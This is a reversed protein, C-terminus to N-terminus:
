SSLALAEVEFLLEPEVLREVVLLTNPPYGGDPYLAPFLRSRVEMFQPIHEAGVLFTTMKLIDGMGCSCAKLATQLNAYAQEVQAAFDPAAVGQSDMGVQGAVAVLDGTGRAVHSYRGLPAGLGAPQTILEVPM